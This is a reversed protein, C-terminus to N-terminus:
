VGGVVVTYTEKTPTMGMKIANVLSKDHHEQQTIMAVMISGGAAKILRKLEIGMKEGVKQGSYTPDIVFFDVCGLKNKAMLGCWVFGVIKGSDECAVLSIDRSNIFAETPSAMGYYSTLATIGPLDSKRAKRIIM